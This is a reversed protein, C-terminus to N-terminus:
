IVFFYIFKGKSFTEAYLAHQNAVRVSGNTSFILKSILIPLHVFVFIM